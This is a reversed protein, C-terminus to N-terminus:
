LVAEREGPLTGRCLDPVPSNIPPPWAEWSPLMQGGSDQGGAKNTVSRLLACHGPFGVEETSRVPRWPLAHEPLTKLAEDHTDLGSTPPVRRIQTGLSARPSEPSVLCAEGLGGFRFGAHWRGLPSLRSHYQLGAVGGQPYCDEEWLITPIIHQCMLCFM